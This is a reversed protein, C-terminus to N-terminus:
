YEVTRTMQLFFSTGASGKDETLQQLVRTVEDGQHYDFLCCSVCQGVGWEFYFKLRPSDDKLSDQIDKQLLQNCCSLDAGIFDSGESNPLNYPQIFATV